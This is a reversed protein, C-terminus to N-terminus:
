QKGPKQALTVRAKEALTKAEPLVELAKLLQPDDDLLTRSADSAGFKNYIVEFRIVRKLYATNDSIDKATFAIKRKELHRRFDAILEDSVHFASDVTPNRALFERGFTFIAFRTALLTQFDNVKPPVVTYDPTISGGGYVKRGLDSYKIDDTKQEIGDRHNYYDYQSIKSYDRQILRGSPTYWKQTTLALADRNKMPFISQVLGKGFSTEGVILARDHDQLAGSVIESASASNPNILVVLPYLNDVNVKQSIYSRSSGRVRGKTQLISQGRQLFTESIEIAATLLGGGNGRLDFILGNLSKPDMSRLADRIEAGSTEAFSDLKIYGIGPKLLFASNVTFKAIEARIIPMELPEGIGARVVTINVTTGLPGKIKSVATNLDLGQTPEGDVKSIVDGVRLDAREAPSGKTPRSVVTLKGFRTTVTIGLGYYRGKQDEIMQGFAKPDFYRSHPDLTRLMGDIAGNIVKTYDLPTAYNEGLLDLVTDFQRLPADIDQTTTRPAAAPVQAHLGASLSLMVALTVVKLFATPRM